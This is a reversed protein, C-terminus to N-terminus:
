RFEIWAKKGDIKFKASLGAIVKGGKGTNIDGDGPPGQPDVRVKADKNGLVKITRYINPYTVFTKTETRM